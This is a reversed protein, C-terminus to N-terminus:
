APFVTLDVTGEKISLHLPPAPEGWRHVNRKFKGCGCPCQSNRAVPQFGRWYTYKTLNPAATTLGFDDVIRLADNLFQNGHDSALVTADAADHAITFGQADTKGNLSTPRRTIRRRMTAGANHLLVDGSYAIRSGVAPHAANSLWTYYDKFREAGPQKALKDVYTQVSIAKPPL